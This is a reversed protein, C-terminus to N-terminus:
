SAGVGTGGTPDDVRTSRLAARLEDDSLGPGFFVLRSEGHGPAPVDLDVQVRGGVAHFRMWSGGDIAVIGKARLVAAPLRDLFDELPALRYRHAGAVTGTRVDSHRAPGPATAPPPRELDQDLVLRTLVDQSAPPAASAAELRPARANRREVEIRASRAAVEGAAERKTFVVLDAAEVQSTWEPGRLRACNLVDVVTVVADVRVLDVLDPRAMTWTLPLPDALGSTEFLVRDLDGRGALEHLAAVLDPNRVC